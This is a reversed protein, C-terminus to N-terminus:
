EEEEHQSNSKPARNSLSVLYSILDNLQTQSLTSAYDSPMISAPSREIAKLDRKSLLYFAGDTSLLQLSFNDENRVLGQYRQGNAAIATVMGTNMEREAPNVIAAKINDPSHTQSYTTLDPGIFGGRGEAMHCNSCQGAGFFITEGAKPNGALAAARNNGQLGRLYAVVSAIAPKGLSQFGPMGAAPRGGSVIEVIESESLKQIQLNTVIDPARDSGRGDLGHCAACNATFLQQGGPSSTSGSGSKAPKTQAPCLTIACALGAALFWIAFGRAVNSRMNEAADAILRVKHCHTM